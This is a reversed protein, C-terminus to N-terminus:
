SLLPTVDSMFRSMQESAKQYPDGILHPFLALREIGVIPVHEIAPPTTVAQWIEYPNPYRAGVDNM